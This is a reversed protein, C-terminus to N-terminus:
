PSTRYENHKKRNTIITHRFSPSIDPMASLDYKAFYQTIAPSTLIAWNIKWESHDNLNKIFTQPFISSGGGNYFLNMIIRKEIKLENGLEMFKKMYIYQRDAFSSVRVIPINNKREIHFPELDNFKAYILRSKHLPVQITKNNFSLQRSTIVNYSQVGILYHNKDSPSLTRFLYKECDIQTFLDGINVIDLQSDIVKFLGDNIKEVLIDCFYISKHKYAWNYKSGVIAIHGDNIQRLIKSLESEFETVYVTDKEKILGRLNTFFSKFSVGKHEWYEFGSYSTNLLYEIMQIDEIAENKSIYTPIEKKEKGHFPLIEKYDVIDSIKAIYSKFEEPVEKSRSNYNCSNFIIITIGILIFPASQLKM